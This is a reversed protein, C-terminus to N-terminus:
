MYVGANIADIYDLVPQEGFEDAVDLLSKDGFGMRPSAILFNVAADTDVVSDNSYVELAKKWISPYTAEIEHAVQDFAAKLNEIADHLSM